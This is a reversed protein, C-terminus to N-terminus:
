RGPVVVQITAPVSQVNGSDDVGRSSIYLRGRLEAHSYSWAQTRRRVPLELYTWREVWRAGTWYRDTGEDRIVLRVATAFREDRATGNIQFSPIVAQSLPTTIATTPPTTDIRFIVSPATTATRGPQDVARASVILWEDPSLDPLGGYRWATLMQGKRALEAPVVVAAPRWDAGDWWSFDSLRQISLDVQEIGAAGEAVGALAAHRNVVEGSQFPLRITTLPPADWSGRAARLKEALGERREASLSDYQNELQYPDAALDYFEPTGAGWEVYVSDFFRLALSAFDLDERGVVRSEWNEILVSDRWRRPEVSSPDRVLPMFSTGDVFNAVKGGGLEVITPALDIHALLHGASEGAPVDPGTVYLPVNTSRHFADSKGFLRHHGNSYGNDSTLIIFTEDAVGTEDLVQLLDGFLDDVSKMALYRERHRKRAYAVLRDNLPAVGRMVTSKDSIDAENFDPDDAPELDPWLELYKREVMGHPSAPSENHPALPNYYLFFPQESRAAVHGRLLAVIEEGEVRTRYNGVAERTVRGDPHEANTFRYTAFYDGGRSSRFDDWGAPVVNLIESHLFKGVMMTRYGAAQMWTGLDDNLYGREAYQRMGGGFGNSRVSGPDNTRIGTNHAYQGRLLCARSPGCIPTTVHCNSFRLGTTAMRNLNPFYKELQEPSVLDADADDLNILIINPQRSASIQASAQPTAPDITAFAIAAVLGPLWIWRFGPFASQPM